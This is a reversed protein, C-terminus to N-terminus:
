PQWYLLLHTLAPVYTIILVGVALVPILTLVSRYVELLPRKFRFAAYFLNIGVPPTLYGLELNALFLVGLHIPDIAFATAPPAVLPHPRHDGRLHGDPVRGAAPPFAEVIPIDADGVLQIDDDSSYVPGSETIADGVSNVAMRKISCGSCMLALLLAAVAM